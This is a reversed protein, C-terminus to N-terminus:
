PHYEDTNHEFNIGLPDYRFLIEATTDFLRAYSKEIQEREANM